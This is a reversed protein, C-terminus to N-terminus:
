EFSATVFHVAQEVIEWRWLPQDYTVRAAKAEELNQYGRLILRLGEPVILGEVPVALAVM